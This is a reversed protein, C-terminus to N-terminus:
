APMREELAEIREQLEMTEFLARYQGAAQTLAHVAKLKTPNDESDLMQSATLIAYWLERRLDELSGAPARQKKAKTSPRTAPRAM